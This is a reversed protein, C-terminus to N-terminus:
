HVHECAGNRDFIGDTQCRMVSPSFRGLLDTCAKEWLVKRSITLLPFGVDRTQCITYGFRYGATKVAELITKNFRGDPYAFHEVPRKLRTELIKKSDTLQRRAEQLPESTLLVHSNTHSGFTIDSRQMEEIMEWSLPLLEEVQERPILGPSDLAPIQKLLEQQPTTTLLATMASFPAPSSQLLHAYLRDYIQAQRTGILDTVVFVAAPIGKRKLIPFANHFVDAYGDDFTIAAAPRSFRRGNELHLGIDDLSVFDFQRGMWDLHKEFTRTSILMSPITRHAADDFNRVVRHYGAIFPTVTSDTPNLWRTAGSWTYASAVCTKALSRLIV